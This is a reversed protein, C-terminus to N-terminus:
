KRDKCFVGCIQTTLFDTHDFTGLKKLRFKESSSPFIKFLRQALSLMLYQESQWLFLFQLVLIFFDNVGGVEGFVMFIDLVLRKQIMVQGSLTFFVEFLGDSESFGADHVISSYNLYDIKKAPALGLFNIMDDKM